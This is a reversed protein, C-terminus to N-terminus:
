GYSDPHREHFAKWGDRGAKFTTKIEEGSIMEYPQAFEFQRQLLWTKKNVKNYDAIASGVIKESEEDPEMCMEYPDTEARITLTTKSNAPQRLIASYVAYAEADDYNTAEPVASEQPCAIAILVVLTSLLMASRRM